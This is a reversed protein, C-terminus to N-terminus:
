YILNEQEALQKLREEWDEIDENDHINQLASILNRHATTKIAGTLILTPWSNGEFSYKYEDDAIFCGAACKLTDNKYLCGDKTICKENQTLLHNKAQDFVQQTTAQELTKLTIM